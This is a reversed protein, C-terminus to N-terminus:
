ALSETMGESGNAKLYREAVWNGEGADLRTKMKVWSFIIPSVEKDGEVAPYRPEAYHEVFHVPFHVFNPLDLGDLWIMPSSADNGHDHWNWRPTLIVDGRAMNIRTGNVATFGGQGEIIFRMAFATHRHAPAVENPMVLQLGAYITDTTFPADTRSILCNTDSPQSPSMGRAPNILMAVRREAQKATILEGAKLLHPRVEDYRWIHPVTQPNPVPPNLKAMQAWLPKTHLEALKSLLNETEDDKSSIPLSLAETRTLSAM